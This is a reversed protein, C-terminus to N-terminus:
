SAHRKSKAVISRVQDASKDRQLAYEDPEILESTSYLDSIASRRRYWQKSVHKKRKRFDEPAWEVARFFTGNFYSECLIMSTTLDRLTRNVRDEHQSIWYVDLGNKRAHSMGMKAVMPFHAHSSSPAVLQAEDIIVVADKLDAFQDWGQFPRWVGPYEDPDLELKFNSVVDVGDKLRQEAMMVARYSKGSGMRGVIGVVKGTTRRRNVKVFLSILLSGVILIGVIILSGYFLFRAVAQFESM